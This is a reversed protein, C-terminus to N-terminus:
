IEPPELPHEHYVPLYEEIVTDAPAGLRRMVSRILALGRERDRVVVDLGCFAVSKGEGMQPGGGTVEGLDEAELAAQLPDEFREGREIPQIDGPIRVYFFCNGDDQAQEAFGLLTEQRGDLEPQKGNEMAIALPDLSVSSLCHPLKLSCSEAVIQRKLVLGFEQILTAQILPRFLVGFV